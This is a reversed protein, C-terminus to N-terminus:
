RVYLWFRRFYEWYVYSILCNTNLKTEFLNRFNTSSNTCTENLLLNLYDHCLFNWFLHSVVPFPPYREENIYQYKEGPTKWVKFRLNEFIRASCRFSCDLLGFCLFCSLILISRLSVLNTSIFNNLLKLISDTGLDKSYLLSVEMGYFVSFKKVSLTVTLKGM